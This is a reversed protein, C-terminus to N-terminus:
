NIPFNIQLNVFQSFRELVAPYVTRMLQQYGEDGLQTRLNGLQWEIYQPLAIKHVPDKLSLQRCRDYHYTKYDFDDMTCYSSTDLDYEDAFVLSDCYKIPKNEQPANPDDTLSQQGDDDERMVEFLADGINQMIAPFRELLIPNNSFISLFALSFLKIKELETVLPMKTIWVDLITELANPQQLEQIVEMFVQQSILLVRAVMTLYMGMLMPFDKNSYVQRFIYPLVPRVLELGNTTDTKLCIELVKVMLIIGEPRIDDFMRNCFDVFSRGYRELYANADLLIYAQILVLVTRLNESSMEIIPMINRCLDILPASISTSNEVVAVWLSLGEEILYIHSPEQLDTSLAILSYLFPRMKEPIDRIAKVIQQLTCIIACRLMSYDESEKWLLPLYSILSDAYPEINDSMKEVLSSMIALVKMKTDCEKAERLLIFLANFSPELYPLFAEPAFDFDSILISLTSSAALRISMDEAPRLLHLCAEYALPRLNRSFNVGAWEGLLWIIRRRLIRFNLAEIKLENLLQGSFWADFDLENFLHLSAQGAANYIADKLLIDKLDSDATLQIQQAKQVYKVVEASMQAQYNTVCVSFLTEVCPRLAYKWTDGGSDDQAFEEPDELWLDLEIQTLIFYHTIIKECIYSLREETFFTELSSRIELDQSNDNDLFKDIKQWYFPSMLGKMLNICHIAFQRFNIVNDTFILYASVHFVHDFTFQLAMPVFNKFAVAHTEQFELLTKMQKLILKELLSVLNEDANLQRLEYRVSLCQKLREFLKEAFQLCVPSNQPKMYGYITLKRLIRTCLVAIELTPKALMPQADKLQHFFLTCYTDWMQYIFEYINSTLEEFVRKEAWLRRSALAKIVHHLTLLVRQQEGSKLSECGATNSASFAQIRKLLEPMLQPWDHPCDIRAIRAMLVAIQLSVQPIPENSFHILLLDRIQQKEEPSLEQRMGKRWYKNIGNKLYVVAMWRVNVDLQQIINPDAVAALCLRTLTPFFGTQTEWEVLQAEAKRVVEHNSDTAARLAQCVMVEPSLPPTQEM